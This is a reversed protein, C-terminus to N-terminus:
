LNIRRLTIIVAMLFFLGSSITGIGWATAVMVGDPMRGRLWLQSGFEVGLGFLAGAFSWGYQRTLTLPFSISAIATGLTGGLIILGPTVGATYAPLFIPVLIPIALLLVIASATYVGGLLFGASRIAAIFGARDKRGFAIACQNNQVLAISGMLQAFFLKVSDAIWYLGISGSTSHTALWTRDLTDAFVSVSSIVIMPVGDRGLSFLVKLHPFGFYKAVPLKTFYQLILWEILLILPWRLLFGRFGLLPVLILSIIRVLSFFLYCKSLTRFRGDARLYVEAAVRLRTITFYIWYSPIALLLWESTRLATSMLILYLLIGTGVLSQIIESFYLVKISPEMQSAEGSGKAIPFQRLFGNPIGFTAFVVYAETLTLIRWVGMDNPGIWRGIAINSLLSAGVFIQQSLTLVIVESRVYVILKLIIKKFFSMHLYESNRDLYNKM